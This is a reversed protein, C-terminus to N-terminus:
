WTYGILVFGGIDLADFDRFTDVEYETHRVEAGVSTTLKPTLPFEVGLGGGFTFSTADESLTTGTFGIRTTQETDAWGLGAFAEAYPRVSRGTPLYGRIVGEGMFDLTGYSVESSFGPPQDGDGSRGGFLLRAGVDVHRGLADFTRAIEIRASGGQGSEDAIGDEINTYVVAGGGRLHWTSREGRPGVVPTHCATALTLLLLAVLPKKM